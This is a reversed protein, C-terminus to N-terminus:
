SISVQSKEEGMGAWRLLHSLDGESVRSHTPLTFLRDRLFTSGPGAHERAALSRRLPEHQELTLPYARLAGLAPSPKRAGSSDVCALRLYGSSGAPITCVPRLSGRENLGAMLKLARVRRCAVEAEDMALASPLMAASADPILRPEGAVRYVMEGLKLAPVSAPLRYLAPHGLMWQATLQAVHRGGRQGRALRSRSAHLWDALKPTRALLAGGSGATMGKGRGFSLISVEALSGLRRGGLIGGAAQAADEIVPIGHPAALERVSQVDAPYGYLHAVVIADVGRAIVAKVSDLDPSLTKPDLDYLRVTVGARVAAATIDICAYGPYAVTGGARVIARLALVLASTGSDTLLV